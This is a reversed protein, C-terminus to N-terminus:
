NGYEWVIMCGQAGDGGDGSVTSGGGGGGGYINGDDGDAAASRAGEGGVGFGKGAPGGNGGIARNGNVFPGGVGGPILVDGTGGTGGAGGVGTGGTADGGSGATGIIVTTDWLTNEGITGDSGDTAHATGTGGAGGEGIQITVSSAIAEVYKAAYEGGGGGPWVDTGGTDAGCGGGGGGICEVWVDITTSQKVFSTTVPNTIISMKILRHAPEGVVITASIETGNNGAADTARVWYKNSGSPEGTLTQAKMADADALSTASSFVAGRRVEVSRIPYSGPTNVWTLTVTSSVVTGALGSNAPGTITSVTTDETASENGTTDIAKIQWTQTAATFGANFATGLVNAHFAAAAWSGAGIRLEYHRLDIDAVADWSLCDGFEGQTDAFNAVNAPAGAKGIVTHGTVTVNVGVLGSNSFARVIVDYSTGAEVGTIYYELMGNNVFSRTSYSGESTKKWLVQHNELLLTTSDVWTAHIRPILDGSETQLLHAGGSALALSTPAVPAVIVINADNSAASENGSTDVAKVKFYVTQATQQRPYLWNDTNVFVQHTASGWAVNGTRVEYHRLDVDAVATWKLRLGGIEETIALGSVNAPAALKGIVTHASVLAQTGGLDSTSIARVIVDYNVGAEVGTIYYKQAGVNTDARSLYESESSKKWLIQYKSVLSSVSDVWTVSIRPIFDGSETQLLHAGGSALALSTVVLPVVIVINASDETASETGSTDISKIMYYLTTATRERTDLFNTTKIFALNTGSSWAVNGTRIEYHRLDAEGIDTWTLRIGGLEETLTLGSVNSPAATKGVVTHASVTAFAGQVLLRSVPRVRVDYSTGDLVPSIWHQLVSSNVFEATDWLSDANKKFQIETRGGQEVSGDTLADWTVKIRSVITGDSQALLEGTGSVLALGTVADPADWALALNTNPAPDVLTEETEPDFAYVASATEKLVMNIGGDSVLSWTIVEYEKATWGLRDITLDVVDGVALQLAQLNCQIEVIIGQRGRKNILVALRQARHQDTVFEFEVDKFIEEGGDETVATADLVPTFDTPLFKNDRDAFVGRVGNHIEAKGPRPRIAIEGRLNDETLTVTAPGYFAGAFMTYRGQTYPMIGGMSALFEPVIDGPTNDLHFTGDVTYRPQSKRTLTHTGSGTDTINITTGLRANDLTSAIQFTNPVEKGSVNFIWYRTALSIGAPLTGSTTFEVGDNPHIAEAKTVPDTVAVTQTIIDTGADVTFDFTNVAAPYLVEEDSIDIATIAAADDIEDTQNARVGFDALLYDRLCLATNNSWKMQLLTGGTGGTTVNVDITFTTTTPVTRVSYEGYVTPVSGSHDTIFVRDDVSLGHVSSTTVLSPDAVSTSTIVIATDNPDAVLRGKMLVKINPAGTPFVDTDFTMKVYVYAINRLQHASTWETVDTVLDADAAQDWLGLHKKIRVKGSFRTSTVNGSGDMDSDDIGIDNLYVTKIEEVQHGALVVIIHLWTNDDNKTEVFAIPGSVVREGYVIAHPDNSGRFMQTIGRRKSSPTKVKPALAKAVFAFGISIVTGLIASGIATSAFAGLAAPLLAAIVPPM